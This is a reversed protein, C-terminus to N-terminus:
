VTAVACFAPLMRNCWMKGDKRPKGVSREGEFRAEFVKKPIRTGEM